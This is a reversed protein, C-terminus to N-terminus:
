ILLSRNKKCKSTRLKYRSESYLRFFCCTKSLIIVCLLKSSSSISFICSDTISITLTYQGLTHHYPNLLFLEPFKTWQLCIFEFPTLGNLTKLRKAYSYAMVFDYLHEKLQHNSRYNLQLMRYTKNMLEVLM